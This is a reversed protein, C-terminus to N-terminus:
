SASRRRVHNGGPRSAPELIDAPYPGFPSPRRRFRLGWLNALKEAAEFSLRGTSVLDQYAKQYDPNRRLFEWALDGPTLDDVYDYATESRWSEDESM